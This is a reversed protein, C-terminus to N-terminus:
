NNYSKWVIKKGKKDYEFKSVFEYRDLYYSYLDKAIMNGKEDFITKEKEYKSGENTVDSNKGVNEYLTETLVKVKGKLNEKQLDNGVIENITEAIFKAKKELKLRKLDNNPEKNWSILIIFM